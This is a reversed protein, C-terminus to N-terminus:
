IATAPPTWFKSSASCRDCATRAAASPSSRASTSWCRATKRKRWRTRTSTSCAMKLERLNVQGNLDDDYRNFLARRSSERVHNCKIEVLVKEFEDFTLSGSGDLDFKRFIKTLEHAQRDIDAFKTLIEFRERILKQLHDAADDETAM